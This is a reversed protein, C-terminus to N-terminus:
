ISSWPMKTQCGLTDLMCDIDHM